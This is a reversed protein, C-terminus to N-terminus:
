TKGHDFNLLMDADNQGNVDTRQSGDDAHMNNFTDRFAFYFCSFFGLKEYM